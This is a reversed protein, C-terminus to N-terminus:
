KVVEEEAADQVKAVIQQYYKQGLKSVTEWNDYVFYGGGVLGALLFLKVALKIM